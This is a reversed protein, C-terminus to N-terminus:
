GARLRLALLLGIISKADTLDGAAILSPIDTLPVRLLQMAHEEHGQTSRPVDSLGEALYVTGHEDCFGPSNHFEALLTWREAALGAEEALERKATELPPEGPVDRKGAPIELLDSALAARYQRELVVAGADDLAVVAVAGPHRVIERTFETGDPGTFIGERLSITHGSHLM